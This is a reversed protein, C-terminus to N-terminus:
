GGNDDLTAHVACTSGTVARVAQCTQIYVEARTPERGLFSETRFNLIEKGGILGMSFPRTFQNYLGVFAHFKVSEPNNERLEGDFNKILNNPLYKVFVTNKAYAFAQNDGEGATNYRNPDIVLYSRSAMFTAFQVMYGDTYNLTIKLFMFIFGVVASFTMIFEITSQGNQKSKRMKIRRISELELFSIREM